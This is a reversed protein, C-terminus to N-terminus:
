GCRSQSRHGQSSEGYHRDVMGQQLALLELCGVGLDASCPLRNGEFSPDHKPQTVPAGTECEDTNEFPLSWPKIDDVGIQQGPRRGPHAELALKSEVREVPIVLVVPFLEWLVETVSRAQRHDVKIVHHVTM